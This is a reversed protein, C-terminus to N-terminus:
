LRIFDYKKHLGLKVVTQLARLCALCEAENNTTGVDYEGFVVLDEGKKVDQLQIGITGVKGQFGGDFAVLLPDGKHQKLVVSNATPKIPVKM